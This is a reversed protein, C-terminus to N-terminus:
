GGGVFGSNQKKVEYVSLTEDALYFAFVFVRTEDDQLDSLLRGEYRLVTNVFEPKKAFTFVQSYGDGKKAAFGDAIKGVREKSSMVSAPPGQSQNNSTTPTVGAASANHANPWHPRAVQNVSPTQKAYWGRTFDDCDYLSFERGYVSVFGGCRLDEASYIEVAEHVGIGPVSLDQPLFHM